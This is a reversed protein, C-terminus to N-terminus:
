RLFPALLRLLEGKGRKGIRAVVNREHQEIRHELQTLLRAGEDKLHLAHSRRDTSSRARRILGAAELRDLM